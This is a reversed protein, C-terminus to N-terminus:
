AKRGRKKEKPINNKKKKGKRNIQNKTLAWIVDIKNTSSLELNKRMEWSKRAENWVIGDFEM